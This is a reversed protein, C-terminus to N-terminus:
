IIAIRTNALTVLTRSGNFFDVKINKIKLTKQIISKPITKAQENWLTLKIHVGDQAVHIERRVWSNGNTNGATIGYDRLVTVEVDIISNIPLTEIQNLNIFNYTLEYNFSMTIERVTTTKNVMLQFEHPLKKYLDDVSRISLGDFEYSQGEILKNSMIYSDLNFAILNIASTNDVLDFTSIEGEGNLNSFTRKPHKCSVIAHLKWPFDIDINIQDIKILKSQTDLIVVSNLANDYSQSILHYTITRTQVTQLTDDTTEYHENSNNQENNEHNNNDQNQDTNEYMDSIDYIVNNDSNDEEHEANNVCIYISFDYRQNSINNCLKEYMEIVLQPIDM